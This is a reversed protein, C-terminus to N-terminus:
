LEIIEGDNNFYDRFVREAESKDTFQHIHGQYSSVMALGEEEGKGMGSFYWDTPIHSGQYCSFIRKIIWTM